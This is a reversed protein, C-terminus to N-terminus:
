RQRLRRLWQHQPAVLCLADALWTAAKDDLRPAAVDFDHQNKPENSKAMYLLQVEPRVIPVREGDVAVLM